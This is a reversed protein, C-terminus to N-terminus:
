LSDSDWEDMEEGLDNAITWVSSWDATLGCKGVDDETALPLTWKPDPPPVYSQELSVPSEALPNVDGQPV